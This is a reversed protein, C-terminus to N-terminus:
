PCPPGTSLRLSGESDTGLPGEAESDDEGTVLYFFCGGPGPTEPDTATGDLIGSELCSGLIGAPLDVLCEGRYLNFTETCTIWPDEWLLTTKDLFFLPQESGPPSIEGLLFDIRDVDAGAVRVSRRRRTDCLGRFLSGFDGPETEVTWEGDLVPLTYTGDCGSTTM